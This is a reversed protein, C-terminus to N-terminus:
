SRFYNHYDIYIVFRESKDTNLIENLKEMSTARSIRNFLKSKELYDTNGITNIDAFSYNQKLGDSIIILSINDGPHYWSLLGFICGLTIVLSFFIPVIRYIQLLNSLPWQRNMNFNSKESYTFRMKNHRRINSFTNIRAQPIM